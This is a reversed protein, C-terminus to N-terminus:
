PPKLSGFYTHKGVQIPALEDRINMEILDLRAHLGYQTKKNINILTGILSDCENKEVHM